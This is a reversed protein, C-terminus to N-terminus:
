EKRLIELLDELQADDVPDGELTRFLAPLKGMLM